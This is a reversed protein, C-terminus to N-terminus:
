NVIPGRRPPIWGERVMLFHLAKKSLKALQEVTPLDVALDASVTEVGVPEEAAFLARAAALTAVVTPAALAAANGSMTRNIVPSLISPPAATVHTLM